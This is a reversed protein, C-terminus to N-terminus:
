LSEGGQHKLLKVIEKKAQNVTLINESVNFGKDKILNMIKTIQLPEIGIAHLSQTNIKLLDQISGFYIAKGENMILVKDCVKVIEELVHSVIIISNGEQEHYNELCEILNMKGQFDMGATPEDLVLIEPKLAIIGAIACRRKEGGSLSLPFRALIDKPIGLINATKEVTEQIEKEGYNQNRLGFAIDDFVTNEFLQQEPHQFVLGVKFGVNEKFVNRGNLLVEGSDPKLIGGLMQILTSKGSGTKGLIGLVEGKALSFSVNQVTPKQIKNETKYTYTLNKVEIM